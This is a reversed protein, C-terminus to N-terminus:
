DVFLRFVYGGMTNIINQIKKSVNYFIYRDAINMAFICPLFLVIGVFAALLVVVLFVPFLLLELITEIHKQRRVKTNHKRTQDPTIPVVPLSM